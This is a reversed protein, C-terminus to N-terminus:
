KNYWSEAENNANGDSVKKRIYDHPSVFKSLHRKLESSYDTWRSLNRIQERSRIADCWHPAMAVCPDIPGLTRGGLDKWLYMCEVRIIGSWSTDNPSGPPNSFDQQEAWQELQAPSRCGRSPSLPQLKMVRGDRHVQLFALMGGFARAGSSRRTAWYNDLGYHGRSRAYRSIRVVSPSSPYSIPVTVVNPVRMGQDPVPGNSSM